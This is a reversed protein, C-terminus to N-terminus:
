PPPSVEAVEPEQDAAPVTSAPLTWYWRARVRDSAPAPVPAREDLRAIADDLEAVLRDLRDMAEVLRSKASSPKPADGV